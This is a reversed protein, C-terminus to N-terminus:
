AIASTEPEEVTATQEALTCCTSESSTGYPKCSGGYCSGAGSKYGLLGMAALFGGIAAALWQHAALSAVIIFAGILMLFVRQITWDTLIRNKM